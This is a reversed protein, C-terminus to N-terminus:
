HAEMLERSASSAAGDLEEITRGSGIASALLQGSRTDHMRLSIKFLSGVKQIEGSVILDAGIRRGTDVECEGECDELKRGTAELLVLLNERTIVQLQPQARLVAQRVVDTFYRTNEKSLSAFDHLELVALKGTLKKAGPPAQQVAAAIAKSEGIAISVDRAWCELSAAPFGQCRESSVKLREVVEGDRDVAVLYFPYDWSLVIHLEGQNAPQGLVRAGESRLDDQILTVFRDIRERSEGPGITPWDVTLRAGDLWSSRALPRPPTTSCAVCAFAFVLHRARVFTHMM